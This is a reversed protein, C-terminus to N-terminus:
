IMVYKDIHEINKQIEIMQKLINGSRKSSYSYFVYLGIARLYFIVM